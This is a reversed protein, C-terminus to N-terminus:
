GHKQKSLSIYQQQLLFPLVLVHHMEYVTTTLLTQYLVRRMNYVIFDELIKQCSINRKLCNPEQLTQAKFAQGM